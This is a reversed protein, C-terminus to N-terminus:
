MTMERPYAYCMLICRAWYANPNLMLAHVATRIEQVSYGCATSYPFQRLSEDSLYDTAAKAM